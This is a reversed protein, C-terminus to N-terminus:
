WRAPNAENIMRFKEFRVKIEAIEDPSFISNAGSKGPRRGLFRVIGSCSFLIVATVAILPLLFPFKNTQIKM